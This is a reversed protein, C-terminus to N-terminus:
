SAAAEILYAVAAAILVAGLLMQVAREPLRHQFRAGIFSGTV